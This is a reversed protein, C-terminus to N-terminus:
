TIRREYWLGATCPRFGASEYLRRAELNEADVTLEVSRAGKEALYSLGVRLVRTGLRHGRRAPDVGIMYVRGFGLGESPGVEATTWCYAVPEGRERLVFVGDHSCDGLNLRYTVEETTTPNYGWTGSFCRNQLEVLEAEEGRQLCRCTLGRDRLAESRRAPRMKLRLELFRRIPVFEHSALATRMWDDDEPVNVHASSAGMGAARDCARDLLCSVLDEDLCEHHVLYWLVARGIDLEPRVEVYAAVMGDGQTAVFLDTEPCFNPHRHREALSEASTCHHRRWARAAEENLHLCGDFDTEGYPRVSWRANMTKRLGSLAM